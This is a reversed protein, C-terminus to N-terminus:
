VLLVPCSHFIVVQLLLFIVRDFQFPQQIARFAVLIRTNGDQWIFPKIMQATDAM